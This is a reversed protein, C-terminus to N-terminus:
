LGHPPKVRPRLDDVHHQFAKLLPPPLHLAAIIKAVPIRMLCEGTIRERVFAEGHEGLGM